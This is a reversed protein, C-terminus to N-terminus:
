YLNKIELRSNYIEHVQLIVEFNFQDKMTVHVRYYLRGITIIEEGENKQLM